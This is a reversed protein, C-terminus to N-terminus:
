SNKKLWAIIEKRKAADSQGAFSMKTGAVVGRPSEIFRDLNAEDWNLGSEKMAPSYNFGAVQAAKKGLVGHLSPGLGNPSDKEVKHCVSCQAFSAPATDAAATADPAVRAAESTGTEGDTNAGGCASLLATTALAILIRM